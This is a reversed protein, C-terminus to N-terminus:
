STYFTKVIFIVNIINVTLILVLFCIENWNFVVIGQEINM